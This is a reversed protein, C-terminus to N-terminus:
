LCEAVLVDSYYLTMSIVWCDERSNWNFRVLPRTFNCAGESILFDDSRQLCCFGAYLSTMPARIIRLGLEAARHAEFLFIRGKDQGARSACVSRAYCSPRYVYTPICASVIFDWTATARAHAKRGKQKGYARSFFVAPIHVRACREGGIALAGGGCYCLPFITPRLSFTEVTLFTKKKKKELTARSSIVIPLYLAPGHLYLISEPAPLNMSSNYM